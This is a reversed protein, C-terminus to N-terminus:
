NRPKQSFYNKENKGYSGINLSHRATYKSRNKFHWIMLMGVMTRSLCVFASPYLKLNLKNRCIYCLLVASKYRVICTDLCKPFLSVTAKKM